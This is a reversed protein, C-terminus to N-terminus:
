NVRFETVIAGTTNAGVMYYYTGSGNGFIGAQDSDSEYALGTWTGGCGRVRDLGDYETVSIDFLNTGDLAPTITGKLMCNSFYKGSITGDAAVTLSLDAEGEALFPSLFDGSWRGPVVSPDGSLPKYADLVVPLDAGDVSLSGTIQAVSVSAKMDVDLSSSGDDFVYGYAPYVHGDQDVDGPGAIHPIVYALGDSDYLFMSGGHAIAILSIRTGDPDYTGRWIGEFDSSSSSSGGGCSSLLAVSLAVLAARIRVEM